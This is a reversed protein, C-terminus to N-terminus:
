AAEEVADVSLEVAARITGLDLDGLWDELPRRDGEGGAGAELRAARRDAGRAHRHLHPQPRLRAQAPRLPLRPRDGAARRGPEVLPRLPLRPERGAPQARPRGRPDLRRAGVPRGRPRVRGAARRAAEREPPRPLLRREPRAAGRPAPRAPRLGPVAHLRAVQRGAARRRAARRPARAQRLPRRAAPGDDAADGPPQLGAEPPRADRARRRPPRLPGRAGRGAGALPRRDGPLPEGARRDAQLLGERDHDAAARARDGALGERPPARVAAVISRLRELAGEDGYQEIPRAFARDFRERSGLLGPNVLDM